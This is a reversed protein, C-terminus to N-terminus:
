KLVHLLVSYICAYQKVTFYSGPMSVTYKQGAAPAFPKFLSNSHVLPHWKKPSTKKEVM